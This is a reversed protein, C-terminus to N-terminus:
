ETIAILAHFLLLFMGEFIMGLKAGFAANEPGEDVSQFMSRFKRILKSQNTKEQPKTQVFRVARM